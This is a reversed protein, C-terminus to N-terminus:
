PSPEARSSESSRTPVSVGTDGVPGQWPGYKAFSIAALIGLVVLVLVAVKWWRDPTLSDLICQSGDVKQEARGKLAYRVTEPLGGSYDLIERKAEDPLARYLAVMEPRALACADPTPPRRNGTYQPTIALTMLVLDKADEALRDRIHEIALLESARGRVLLDSPRVLGVDSLGRCCERYLWKPADPGGAEAMLTSHFGGLAESLETSKGGRDEGRARRLRLGALFLSPLGHGHMDLGHLAAEWEKAEAEDMQGVVGLRLLLLQQTFAQPTTMMSVRARTDADHILGRVRGEAALGPAHPAIHLQAFEMTRRDVLDVVQQLESIRDIEPSLADWTQHDLAAEGQLVRAARVARTRSELLDPVPVGEALGKLLWEGYPGPRVTLRGASAVRLRSTDVNVYRHPPLPHPSGSAWLQWDPDPTAAGGVAETNFSCELRQEPALLAMLGALTQEREDLSGVIAVGRPPRESVLEHAGLALAILERLAGPEQGWRLAGDFGTERAPEFCVDIPEGLTDRIALAEDITQVFAFQDFVYFPNGGAEREFQEADFMLFHAV